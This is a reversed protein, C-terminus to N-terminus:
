AHSFRDASLTDPNSRGCSELNKGSEFGGVRKATTTTRAYTAQYGEYVGERFFSKHIEVFGEPQKNRSLGSFKEPGNSLRDKLM